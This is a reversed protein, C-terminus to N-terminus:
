LIEHILIAQIVYLSHQLKCDSLESYFIVYQLNMLVLRTCNGMKFSDSNFVM